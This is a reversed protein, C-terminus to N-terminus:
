NAFKIRPNIYLSKCMAKGDYNKEFKSVAIINFSIFGYKDPCSDVTDEVFVMGTAASVPSREYVLLSHIFGRQIFFDNVSFRHRKNDIIRREGTYIKSAEGPPMSCPCVWSLCEADLYSYHRPKLSTGNFVAIM